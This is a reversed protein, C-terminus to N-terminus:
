VMHPKSFGGSGQVIFSRRSVELVAMALCALAGMAIVLKLLVKATSAAWNKRPLVTPQFLIEDDSWRKHMTQEAKEEGINEQMDNSSDVYQVIADANLLHSESNQQMWEAATLPNASGSAHPYPCELPFVFHLWQSFIRGHLPVSGGNRAAVQELRQVLVEPFTGPPWEVTSSTLKSTIAILTSASATPAAVAREIQALLGECENICCIQYFGTNGMCNSKSLVYNPVIVRPVGAKSEELAGQSRLYDSTEKLRLGNEVGVRYFDDLPVLGTEGDEKELLAYKLHFCEANQFNGFRESVEEAIRIMDVFSNGRPHVFPNVSGQQLYKVTHWVDRLWLQTDTWGPYSNGFRALKNRISVNGKLRHQGVLLSYMYADLITAAEKAEVREEVSLDLADYVARLRDTAEDHIFHELTAAMIALEHLKLGSAGFAEEFMDMLFGPVRGRL